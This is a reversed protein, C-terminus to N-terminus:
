LLVREGYHDGVVTGFGLEPGISKPSGYGVALHGKENFYKVWVDLREVWQGDKWLHKYLDRTAPQRAQHEAVSVKAKGQMNSQGALIFVKVPKKPDAAPLFAPLGALLTLAVVPKM